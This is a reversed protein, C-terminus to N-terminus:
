SNFVKEIEGVKKQVKGSLNEDQGEAKMKDDNIVDGVTEKVKGKLEHFTGKVQDTTSRDM